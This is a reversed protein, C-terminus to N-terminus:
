PKEGSNGVSKERTIGITDEFFESFQRMEAVIKDPQPAMKETLSPVMDPKRRILELSAVILALHNNINHRMIALQQSLQEIQAIDLTVPKEPLGM